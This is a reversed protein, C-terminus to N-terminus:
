SRTHEFTAIPGSAGTHIQFNGSIYEGIIKPWFANAEANNRLWRVEWKGPSQDFTRFAVRRGIGRRQYNRIVFFEAISWGDGPSIVQTHRNVLVFGALHGDIRIFFPHRGPEKWYSDIWRHEFLGEENLNAEENRAEETGTMNYLYLQLLRELVPKRELPIAELLIEM